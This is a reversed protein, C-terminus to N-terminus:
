EELQNRIADVFGRHYDPLVMELTDLLDMCKAYNDRKMVLAYVSLMVEDNNRIMHINVLGEKIMNRALSVVMDDFEKQYNDFREGIPIVLKRDEKLLKM